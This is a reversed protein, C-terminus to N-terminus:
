NHNTKIKEHEPVLLNLEQLLNGSLSFFARGNSKLNRKEIYHDVIFQGPGNFLEEIVGDEHIHIALFFEPVSGSPFYSSRRMSSKIQVSRGSIIEIADHLHSNEDLLQLNYKKAALIEGIDGVLKGDLTFSRKYQSKLKKTIDLLEKIEIM